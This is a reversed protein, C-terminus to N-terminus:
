LQRQAMEYFLGKNEMLEEFTGQEVIKGKDLVIIRDCHRITSLRHAIVVRTCMLEDLNDSVAKQAINDLASTAEDFFIIDPKSILARAILIRQKQGGSFGGGGESVVTHLGMPMRRVDDELCAMRLAEWADDHTAWPATITINHFLDGTFLSGSQLCCGIKRRLSAKDVKSLDYNDYYIGGTLPQEFGLMLRMLTSKGCGSKGVIGVYEGPEIKLSLDDLILPGEESYRFSVGSVEIGGYLEEVQPAKDEMEPVAELIPKVSELLPKIQSLSPLVGNLQVLSATIMGFASSFAIYDSTTVGNKLTSWFILMTGGLGLLATLAPYLRRTFAPNYIFRAAESYHDLWRAFARNESGTLKLKQIGAFLNYELGSLKAARETYKQQEAVSRRYNLAFVTAQAAIIGLAPWLLKGGYYYVQVLYIISLVGSLLAGVINENVLSALTSVNQLKATLEGSSNKSFFTPSLLFTRAMVANQVHLEVIHQIRIIYLNRTFTLLLTGVTAGILLGTIPLLDSADGTPIVTDFILKNAMPTFMGLLIVVLACLVLLLANPGSVVSWTFAILDKLKLPRLPLAKTFTVAMPKMKQAMERRGVQRISGDLDRYQYGLGTKTPILALLRGDKAYGLLPGVCERWWEGVLRIDRMMIGRPRLIGTLLEEPSLMDDDELEYDTIGLAELVQRLASEDNQPVARKNGLLGLRKGTKENVEALAAKEAARRKNIQKIYVAM